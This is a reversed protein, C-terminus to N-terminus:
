QLYFYCRSSFYMICKRLVNPSFLTYPYEKARKAFKTNRGHECTEYIAIANMCSNCILYSLKSTNIVAYLCSEIDYWLPNLFIKKSIMVSCVDINHCSLINYLLM